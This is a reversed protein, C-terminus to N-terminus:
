LKALEFILQKEEWSLFTGWNSSEGPSWCSSIEVRMHDPRAGQLRALNKHWGADPFYHAM